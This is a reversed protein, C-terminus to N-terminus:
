VLLNMYSHLDSGCIGSQTVRILVDRPGIVPVPVVEIEIDYPGKFVAARMERAM